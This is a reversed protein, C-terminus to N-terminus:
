PRGMRPAAPQNPPVGEGPELTRYTKATADLTLLGDRLPQLTFSDLAVMRPLRAMDAAFAGLDHYRGTVRLMVPVEAYHARLLVQGPRFLEFQLGRALGARNIDTLIAEMEAKGPLQAELRLVEAQLRDRQRRLLDAQGARALKGQFEERLAQESAREAELQRALPQLVSLWLVLGVWGAVMLFLGYRPAAPWSAPERLNLGRVRDRLPIVWGSLGHRDPRANVM